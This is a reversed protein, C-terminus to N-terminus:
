GTEQSTCRTRRQFERVRDKKRFGRRPESFLQAAEHVGVFIRRYRPKSTLEGGEGDGGSTCTAVAEACGKVGDCVWRAWKGWAAVREYKIGIVSHDVDVYVRLARDKLYVHEVAIVELGHQVAQLWDDSAGKSGSERDRSSTPLTRM